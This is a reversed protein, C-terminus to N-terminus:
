RTFIEGLPMKVFNPAHVLFLCIAKNILGPIIVVKRKALAKLSIRAVSESTMLFQMRWDNINMGAATMFDTATGGPALVTVGICDKKLEQSLAQGFSLVYAKSAAYTAFNPVPTLGGISAVLLIAGGQGRAKMDAAFLHTLETLANINIALLSLHQASPIDLFPAQLGFGANNILVDVDIGLTKIQKYIDNSASPQTLDCSVVTVTIGHQQELKTKLQELREQRRAVIVLNCHQEALQKAIAEGIGGSAGTILATKHRFDFM